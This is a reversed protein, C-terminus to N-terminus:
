SAFLIRNVSDYMNKADCIVAGPIHAVCVDSNVRKLNCDNWVEYWLKKIFENEDYANGCAQVEACTSSRAVRKLKRSHWLLISHPAQKGELM